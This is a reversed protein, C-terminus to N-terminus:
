NFFFVQTLRCDELTSGVGAIMSRHYMSGPYIIARNYYNKSEFILEWDNFVTRSYHRNLDTKYDAPDWQSIGTEKHRFIGTGADPDIGPTLYVVAAWETSDHHVWTNIGGFCSQFCGNMTLPGPERFQDWQTIARGMIGEIRQKAYDYMEPSPGASRKGPYNATFKYEQSLAYSRVSDPDEYFGDVVIYKQEM